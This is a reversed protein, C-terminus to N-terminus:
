KEEFPPSRRAQVLFPATVASQKVADLLPRRIWESQSTQFATRLADVDPMQQRTRGSFDGEALVQNRQRAMLQSQLIAVLHTKDDWVGQRMATGRDREETVAGSNDSVTPALYIILVVRRKVKPMSECMM